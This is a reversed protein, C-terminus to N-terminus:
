QRYQRLQTAASLGRQECDKQYERNPWDSKKNGGQNRGHSKPNNKGCKKSYPDPAGARDPSDERHDV